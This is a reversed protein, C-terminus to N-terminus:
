VDDAFGLTVAVGSLEDAEDASSDAANKVAMPQADENKHYKKRHTNAHVEKDFMQDCFGCAITFRLADGASHADKHQTYATHELFAKKCIECNFLNQKNHNFHWHKEYKEQSTLKVHCDPCQYMEAEGRLKCRHNNMDRVSYFPADCHKCVHVNKMEQHKAKAHSVFGFYKQFVKNCGTCLYGEASDKPAQQNPKPQKKKKGFDDTSVIGSTQVGAAIGHFEHATTRHQYYQSFTLYVKACVECRTAKNDSSEPHAITRHQEMGQLTTFKKHCVTCEFPKEKPGAPKPQKEKPPEPVDFSTYKTAQETVNGAYSSATYGQDVEVNRPAPERYLEQERRPVPERYPAPKSNNQHFYVWEGSINNPRQEDEVPPNQYDGAAHYQSRQFNMAQKLPGIPQGPTIMPMHQSQQSGPPPPFNERSPPGPPPPPFNRQPPLGSPPPPFSNHGQYGYDGYDSERYHKVMGGYGYSDYNPGYSDYPAPRKGYQNM